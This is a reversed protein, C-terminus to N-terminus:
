NELGAWRGYCNKGDLNLFWNGSAEKPKIKGKIFYGNPSELHFFGEKSTVGKMTACEKLFCYFSIEVQQEKYNIGLEGNEQCNGSTTIFGGLYDSSQLANECGTLIYLTLLTAILRM